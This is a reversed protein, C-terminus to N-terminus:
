SFPLFLNRFLNRFAKTVFNGLYSITVGGIPIIQNKDGIATNFRWM